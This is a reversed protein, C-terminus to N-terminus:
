CDQSGKILHCSCISMALLLGKRDGATGAKLKELEGRGVM